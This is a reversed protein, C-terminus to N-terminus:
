CVFLEAVFRWWKSLWGLLSFSSSYDLVLFDKFFLLVLGHFANDQLESIV